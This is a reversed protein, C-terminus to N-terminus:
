DVKIANYNVRRHGHLGGSLFEHCRKLENVRGDVWYAFIWVYVEFMCSCDDISLTNFVTRLDILNAVNDADMTSIEFKPFSARLEIDIDLKVRAPAKKARGLFIAPTHTVFINFHDVSLGYSVTNVLRVLKRTLAVWLVQANFLRDKVVQSSPGDVVEAIVWHDM